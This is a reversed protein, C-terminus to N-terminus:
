FTFDSSLYFSVPAGPYGTTSEYSENLANEIRASIVKNEDLKYSGYIRLVSMDEFRIGATDERNAAAMFGLGLNIKEDVQWNINSIFKHMPRRILQDGAVGSYGSGLSGEIISADLYNYNLYCGINKYLDIKIYSEFGNQKTNVVDYGSLPWPKSDALNFIKNRFLILGMEQIRMKQPNALGQKPFYRVGIENSRITELQFPITDINSNYVYNLAPPTSQGYSKKAFLKINKEAGLAKNIEIGGTKSLDFYKDYDTLRGNISLLTDPSLSLMLGGFLAENSYDHHLPSSGSTDKTPGQDYSKGEDLFGFSFNGNLNTPNYYFLAQFSNIKEVYLNDYNDAFGPFGPSDISELESKTYNYLINGSLTDSIKFFIRPSILKTNSVNRQAQPFSAGYISGPVGLDSDFAYYQLDFDFQENIDYRFFLNSSLREYDSNEQFGDTKKSNIGLAVGMKDTGYALSYDQDSYNDAGLSLKVKQILETNLVGSRINIVGGISDNGYLSSADGRLMEVSSANVLSLQGLDYQSSFGSPIRRGNLLISTHSSQSGRSFLSCLAGTGGSQVLFIGPMQNLVGTLDALQQKEIEGFTVRSVSPSIEKISQEFLSGTVVFDPLEYVKSLDKQDESYCDLFWFLPLSLLLIFKKM